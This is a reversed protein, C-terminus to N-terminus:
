DDDDTESHSGLIEQLAEYYRRADGLIWLAKRDTQRDTQRSSSISMNTLTMSM